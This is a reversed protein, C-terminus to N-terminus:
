SFKRIVIARLNITVSINLKLNKTIISRAMIPQHGAPSLDIISLRLHGFHVKRQEDAWYGLDDPGRHAIATNMAAVLEKGNDISSGFSVIGNIGCM